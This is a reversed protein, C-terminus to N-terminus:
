TIEYNLQQSYKLLCQLALIEQIHQNSGKPYIDLLPIDPDYSLEIKKRKQSIEMSIEMNAANTLVGM